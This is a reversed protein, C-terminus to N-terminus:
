KYINKYTKEDRLDVSDIIAEGAEYHFIVRFRRKKLRYSNTGSLKKINLGQLDGLILKKIANEIIVRKRRGVKKLFKDLRNM